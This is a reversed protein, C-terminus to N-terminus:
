NFLCSRIGLIGNKNIADKPFYMSSSIDVVMQCRLNTEEEYRKSLVDQDTRAYLKWDIHRTSSGPNYLRHEPLSWLSAM